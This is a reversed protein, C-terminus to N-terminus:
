IKEELYATIRSLRLRSLSPRFFRTDNNWTAKLQQYKSVVLRKSLFLICIKHPFHEPTWIKSCLIILGRFYYVNGLGYCTLQSIKNFITERM